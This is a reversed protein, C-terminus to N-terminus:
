KIQNFINVFTQPDQAGSFAPQGNFFFFPVGSTSKSNGSAEQIVQAKLTEINMARRTEEETLGVSAAVEVLGAEDLFIGDTFYANFLAEQLQNQVFSGKEKECYSLLCHALTTNPTRDCKGTFDIGVQQGAAKMRAGVRPNEATNPAKPTGEVPTHPRLFFPKWVVEVELGPFRAIAAEM